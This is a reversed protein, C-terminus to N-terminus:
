HSWAAAVATGLSPPTRHSTTMHPSSPNSLLQVILQRLAESQNEGGVSLSADFHQLSCKLYKMTCHQLSNAIRQPLYRPSDPEKVTVLAARRINTQSTLQKLGNYASLLSPMELSIAVVPCSQTPLTIGAMTEADAYIVLASFEHFLKRIADFTPLASSRQRLLQRIGNAAPVVSWLSGGSLAPPHRHELMGQLGPNAATEDATADLVALPYGLRQIGSCTQWLVSMESTRDGHHLVSLVCPLTAVALSRLGLGQNMGNPELM